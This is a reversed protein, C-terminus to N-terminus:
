REPLRHTPCTQVVVVHHQRGQGQISLSQRADFFQEKDDSPSRWRVSTRTPTSETSHRVMTSRGRVSSKQQSFAPPQLNSELGAHPSGYSLQKPSVPSDPFPTATVERCGRRVIEMLQNQTVSLVPDDV